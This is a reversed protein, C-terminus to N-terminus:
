VEGQGRLGGEPRPEDKPKATRVAPKIDNALAWVRGLTLPLTIDDRGLADAIANAIAAPTLMSSGDGM